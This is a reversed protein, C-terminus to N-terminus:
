RNHKPNHQQVFSIALKSFKWHQLSDLATYQHLFVILWFVFKYSKKSTKHRLCRQALFAAPWGGLLELFHLHAEPVRWRGSIARRKDFHYAVFTFISIASFWAAFMRLDPAFKKVAIAPLVLLLALLFFSGFPIQPADLRYSAEVACPRGKEDRGM